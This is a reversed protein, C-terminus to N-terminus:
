SQRFDSVSPISEHVSHVSACRSALVAVCNTPRAPRPSVLAALPRPQTLQDVNPLHLAALAVETSELLGSIYCEVTSTGRCTPLSVESLM